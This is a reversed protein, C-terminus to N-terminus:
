SSMAYSSMCVVAILIFSFFILWIVIGRESSIRAFQMVIVPLGDSANRLMQQFEEVYNGYLACEFRGRFDSIFVFVTFLYHCV